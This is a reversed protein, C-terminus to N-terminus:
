PKHVNLIGTGTITILNTNTNTQVDIDYCDGTIGNNIVPYNAGIPIDPIIVRSTADPVRCDWNTPVEWLTNTVGKWTYFLNTIPTLRGVVLPTLTASCTNQDVVNVSYSGINLGSIDQTSATIPGTWSYAYPSTGGSPTLDIIGDNYYCSADTITASLSIAAPENINFNVNQLCGAMDAVNVTHAGVALNTLVNDTTVVTGISATPETAAYKRVFMWDWTATFSENYQGNDIRSGLRINESSIGGANNIGTWSISGGSEKTRYLESNVGIGIIKDRVWSGNVTLSQSTQYGDNSYFSTNSSGSRISLNNGTSNGFGLSTFGNSVPVSELIRSEAVLPGTFSTVSQQWWNNNGGLLTGGTYRWTPGSPIQHQLLKGRTWKSTNFYDFDDFFTFVNNGSSSTTLAANGFVMYITTNGTPLSAMKVWFTATTSLTYSEIWFPILNLNADFFRVNGFDARMPATFAVGSVKVPFNTLAGNGIANTITIPKMSGGTVKYVTGDKIVYPSIGNIPNITASGDNSGNCTADVVPSATSTHNSVNVKVTASQICSGGTGDNITLTYTITSTPNSVVPNLITTSSLNTAPSWAYSVTNSVVKTQINLNYDEVEGSEAFTGSCSNAALDNTQRLGIRMRTNGLVADDPVSITLSRTYTGPGAVGGFLLYIENNDSFDGDRNWDIWARLYRTTTGSVADQIVSLTYDTSTFIDTSTGTYNTYVSNSSTNNITNFTVNTIKENASSGSQTACYGVNQACGSTCSQTLPLPLEGIIGGDLTVSTGSCTTIERGASPIWPATVLANGATNCSNADTVAVEYNGALLSSWTNSTAPSNLTGNLYYNLTGTGGIANVTIAGTGSGGCGVINTINFSTITIPSPETITLNNQVSRCNFADKIIVEYTGAALNSVAYPDTSFSQWITSSIGDLGYFYPATGGSIGSITIVGTTGGSCTENTTVVSTATVASVGTLIVPNSVYYGICGGGDKIAVNYPVGDSLGSFVNSAQTTIGNDISYTYPGGAATITISGDASTCSTVNTTSISTIVPAVASVTLIVDDNVANCPGSPNDSTLRLTVTGVGGAVPTFIVTQPSITAGTNSLQSSLTSMTGTASVISWTGTSAGGGITAGALTYPNADCITADTGANVTASPNITLLVFDSSAPCNNAPDDTELKLTVTGSNSSIPTFTVTAPTGTPSTNSLQSSANTMSGTTAVISWTGVTATGGITADTLTYASGSCITADLGAYVTPAIDFTVYVDDTSVCAGNTITWRLTYTTGATGSFTSSPVSPTTISGGAGVIISWVGSGITPTNAALTTSTNCVTQDFGAASTTPLTTITVSTTATVVACGGSAAITYTVTYTGATSTSPNIAGTGAVITLGATSSYTGGATGTLTVAQGAGLSTCFPTGAYSITATPLTTITVSATATVVACGGAAAITYTVTYTGGTSSSPTILGTSSNITLGATSSYTGGATGTPTVAQTGATTCWPSGTYSITAAPLTTVTITVDSTYAVNGCKDTVKRRYAYTGATLSGPDYTVGTAGGIDVTNLQWQYAASGNNVSASAGGSASTANTFAPPDYPDCASTLGAYGISGANLASTVDTLTIAGNSGGGGETVRFEVLDTAGLAGTWVNTHADCCGTHTGQSVGNIFLDYRDDHAPIDIQYVKCTFNTRKASWSHYDIRVPCGTWAAGSVAGAESPSNAWRSTTNFSLTNETYFGAYNNVWDNNTGTGNGSNYGYVNWAGSGYTAPNGVPTCCSTSFDIGNGTVSGDSTLQVTLPSGVITPIATSGSGSWLLTAGTGTGDYIYVYDYSAETAISGTMVTQGSSATIVNYGNYSNGYTFNTGYMDHIKDCCSTVAKNGTNPVSVYRRYQHVASGGTWACNFYRTSQAWAANAGPVLANLETLGACNDVDQCTVCAGTNNTVRVDMRTDYATGCNTFDYGYGTVVNFLQYDGQNFSSTTLYGSGCGPNITAGIQTGNTACQASLKESSEFVFFILFVFTTKTFINKVISTFKKKM